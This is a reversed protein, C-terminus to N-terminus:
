KREAALQMLLYVSLILLSLNGGCRLQVLVACMWLAATGLVTLVEMIRAARLPDTVTCLIASLIVGGDLPLIPLLSFLSLALSSAGFLARGRGCAGIGACLVGCLGALPGAAAIAAEAGYSLSVAEYRVAAGVPLLRFGRVPAHFIRCAIYHGCEHLLVACLIPLMDRVGNLLFLLVAAVASM